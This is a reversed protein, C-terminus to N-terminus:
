KQGGKQQPQVTQIPMSNEGNANNEAVLEKKSLKGIMTKPLSDRFELEKPREVPNLRGSVYDLLQDKNITAGPKLKVYAKPQEGRYDDKIGIVIVEDVEPHSYFADEIVRPYVNYGACIIIDKLRDTLFVYGDEDQHGVDGTLLWGEVFTDDTAAQNQWYGKMVQPGRVAIEGIEGVSLTKNKKQLNRISIETWPLPLGISDAKNEGDPPNCTIVPSAETLGYGEVLTCGSIKEFSEKIALPLAAGGSICFRISSLDYNKLKPHNNIAGFITPVAPFLTVKRAELDKLVDELNFRPHLILEAGSALGLNMAATMAFVHFFPIACLIREGKPDTEGMWICVQQTNAVVNAHTLMAGKPIG